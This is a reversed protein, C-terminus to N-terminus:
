SGKEGVVSRRLFSRQGEVVDGVLGALWAVYKGDRRGRWLEGDRGSSRTGRVEIKRPV